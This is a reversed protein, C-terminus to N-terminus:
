LGTSRRIARFYMADSVHTLAKLWLTFRKPFHIEFRGQAWGKVIERAAQEISQHDYAKLRIRIKNDTLAAMPLTWVRLPVRGDYRSMAGLARLLRLLLATGTVGDSLAFPAALLALAILAPLPSRPPM